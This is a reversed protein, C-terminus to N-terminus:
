GSIWFDGEEEAPSQWSSGEHFIPSRPISCISEPGKGCGLDILVSPGSGLAVILGEAVWGSVTDTGLSLDVGHVGVGSALEVRSMQRLAVCHCVQCLEVAESHFLPLTPM